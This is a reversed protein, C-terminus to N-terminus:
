YDSDPNVVRATLAAMDGVIILNSVIPGFLALILLLNVLYISWRYGCARSALEPFSHTGTLHSAMQIVYLALMALAADLVFVTIGLTPGTRSMMYPLTVIGSGVM